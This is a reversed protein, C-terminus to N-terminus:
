GGEISPQTLIAFIRLDRLFDLTAADVSIERRRPHGLGCGAGAM